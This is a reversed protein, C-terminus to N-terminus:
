YPTISVIMFDRLDDFVARRFVEPSRYLQVNSGYRVQSRAVEMPRDVVDVREM